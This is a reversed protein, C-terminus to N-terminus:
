REIRIEIAINDDYETPSIMIGKHCIKNNGYKNICDTLYTENYKGKIYCPFKDITVYTENLIYIDINCFNDDIKEIFDKVTIKIGRKNKYNQLLQSLRKVM